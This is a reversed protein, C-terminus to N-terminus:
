KIIFPISGVTAGVQYEMQLKFETDNLQDVWYDVNNVSVKNIQAFPDASM